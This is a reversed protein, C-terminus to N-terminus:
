FSSKCFEQKMNVIQKRIQDVKDIGQQSLVSSLIGFDTQFINLM